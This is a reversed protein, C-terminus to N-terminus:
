KGPLDIYQFPLMRARSLEIGARGFMVRKITKLRNIQGEAQGSSWPEAIANRVADIDRALIRAFQQLARIGSHRADDLSCSRRERFPRTRSAGIIVTMGLHRLNAAARARDSALLVRRFSGAAMGCSSRKLKSEPVLPCNSKRECAGEEARFACGQCDTGRFAVFVGIEHLTVAEELVALLHEEGSLPAAGVLILKRVLSGHEAAIQQGVCGGLSYGLLDVKSFGLLGLFTVANCAMAAINDPTTGTSRGVGANDLVIVPRDLALPNVIAPDWADINGSFHRLLVL